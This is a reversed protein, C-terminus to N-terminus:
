GTVEALTLYVGAGKASKNCNAWTTTKNGSPVLGNGSRINVWWWFLETANGQPCNWLFHEYGSGCCINLHQLKLIVVVDELPAILWILGNCVLLGSAYWSCTCVQYFPLSIFTTLICKLYFIFIKKDMISNIFCWRNQIIHLEIHIIPSCLTKYLEM